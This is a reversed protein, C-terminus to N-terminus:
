ELQSRPVPIRAVPEGARDARIALQVEGVAIRLVLALRQVVEAARPESYGHPEVHALRDLREPLGLPREGDPVAVDALVPVRGRPLGRTVPDPGPAQEDAVVRQPGPPDGAVRLDLVLARLQGRRDVLHVARDRRIGPEDRRNQGDAVADHDREPEASPAPALSGGGRGPLSPVIASRRIAFRGESNPRRYRPRSPCHDQIAWRTVPTAMMRNRNAWM